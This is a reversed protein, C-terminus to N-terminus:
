NYKKFEKELMDVIDSAIESKHKLTFEQIKNEKDIITIKNTDDIFCKNVESLTNLVIFNFNKTQLKKFANQEGNETELAFGALIQRPKKIEGLKAAIDLNATLEITINDNKNKIKKSSYNNPRFDAVAATLIAADCKPFLEVSAKYMEDASIINTRIINKNNIELNVPGAILDVIAGRKVLEEAIAFGTKGSSYNSIFRVPDINEVTPGATVLVRKGELTKSKDKVSFFERLKELIVEPEEMRGKGHLGSALVGTGPEIVMCGREILLSINKQSAPHQFMDCDMAPAVFVPCRVSLYTTLLLNDCIGTAMKALTNASAPAIVMADAWLGLNVHSHWTGDKTEFFTGLVPLGSLASLTAPTIFEKGAPTILVQVEAEEKKLLRLLYAAKYAAISGTIGLIIKKGKLM